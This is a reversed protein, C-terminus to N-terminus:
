KQFDDVFGRLSPRWPPPDQKAMTQISPSDSSSNSTSKSSRLSFQPMAENLTPALANLQWFSLGCMSTEQPVFFIRALLSPQCKRANSTFIPQKPRHRHSGPTPLSNVELCWSICSHRDVLERRSDLIYMNEAQVANCCFSSRQFHVRCATTWTAISLSSIVWIPALYLYM